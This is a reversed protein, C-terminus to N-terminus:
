IEFAIMTFDTEYNAEYRMLRNRLKQFIIKGLSKTFIDAVNDASAVYRLDLTKNLIQEQFVYSDATRM